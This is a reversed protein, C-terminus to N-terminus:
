TPRGFSGARPWSPDQRRAFIIGAVFCFVDGVAVVLPAGAQDAAWGMLLSGFPAMGVLMMSFLSMVQYKPRRM